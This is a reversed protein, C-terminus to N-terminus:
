CLLEFTWWDQLFQLTSCSTLITNGCVSLYCHLKGSIFSSCSYFHLIFVARAIQGILDANFDRKRIMINFKLNGIYVFRFFTDIRRSHIFCYLAGLPGNGNYKTVIICFPISSIMSTCYKVLITDLKTFPANLLRLHGIISPHSLLSFYIESSMSKIHIGWSACGRLHGSSAWNPIAALTKLATFPAIYKTRVM